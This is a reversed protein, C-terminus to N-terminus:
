SGIGALEAIKELALRETPTVEIEVTDEEAEFGFYVDHDAIFWLLDAIWKYRRPRM